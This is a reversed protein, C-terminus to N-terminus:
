GRKRIAQAQRALAAYVAYADTLAAHSLPLEYDNYHPNGRWRDAIERNANVPSVADLTGWAHVM